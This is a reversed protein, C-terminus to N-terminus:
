DQPRAPRHRAFVYTAAVVVSAGILLPLLWSMGGSNSGGTGTIQGLVQQVGSSGSADSSRTSTASGAKGGTGHAAHKGEKRGTKKSSSGAPSSETALEAAAKGEPGLAELKRANKAGLTQATSKPTNTGGGASNGGGAASNGGPGPLTETYQNAGSVGPPVNQAAATGFSAFIIAVLLVPVAILRTRTVLLSYPGPHVLRVLGLPRDM